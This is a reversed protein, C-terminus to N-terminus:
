WSTGNFPQIQHMQRQLGHACVATSSAAYTSFAKHKPEIPNFQYKKLANAAKQQIKNHSDENCHSLFVFLAKEKILPSCM